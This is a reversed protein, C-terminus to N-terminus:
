EKAKLDILKVNVTAVVIACVYGYFSFLAPSSFWQALAIIGLAYAAIMAANVLCKM